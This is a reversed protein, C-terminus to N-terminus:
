LRSLLTRAMNRGLTMGGAVAGPPHEITRGDELDAAIRRLYFALEPASTWHPSHMLRYAITNDDGGDTIAIVLTM